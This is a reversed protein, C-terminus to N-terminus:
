RLGLALFVGGVLGVVMGVYWLVPRRTLVAIASLAIAVQFATVSTALSSHKRMHEDSEHELEKAKEEIEKQQEGYEKIKEEDKPGPKKDMSELLEIKSQLVSAKIGKAQYYAYQDTAQMEELIAENATHGAFLAAMAAGVAMVAATLAVQEVWRPIKAQAGHGHEGHAKEHLTEHLHETPVEIEEPM